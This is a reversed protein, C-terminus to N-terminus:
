CLLQPVLFWQVYKIESSQKFAFYFRNGVQLFTSTTQNYFSVSWLVFHLTMNLKLLNSPATQHFKLDVGCWQDHKWAVQLITKWIPCLQNNPWVFESFDSPLVEFIQRVDSMKYFSWNKHFSKESFLKYPPHSGILPAVRPLRICWRRRFM